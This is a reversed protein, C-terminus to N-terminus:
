SSIRLIEEVMDAVKIYTERDIFEEVEKKKDDNTAGAPFVPYVGGSASVTWNHGSETHYLAPKSVSGLHGHNGGGFTSKIAIANRCLEECAICMRGYYPEGEIKTLTSYKFKRETGKPNADPITPIFSDMVSVTVNVPPTSSAGAAAADTINDVAKKKNDKSQPSYEFPNM